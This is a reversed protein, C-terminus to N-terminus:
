HQIVNAVNGDGYQTVVTKSYDRFQEVNAWNGTGNQIVLAYNHNSRQVVNAQNREGNQAVLAWNGFGAQTLAIRNSRGSQRLDAYNGGGRQVAHTEGDRGRQQLLSTNGNGFQDVYARQDDGFQEIAVYSRAGGAAFSSVSLEPAGLDSAMGQEAFLAGVLVLTFVRIWRFTRKWLATTVLNGEILKQKRDSWWSSQLLLAKPPEARCPSRPLSSTYSTDAKLESGCHMCTLGRCDIRDGAFTTTREGKRGSSSLLSKFVWKHRTM